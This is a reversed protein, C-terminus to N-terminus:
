PPNEPHSRIVNPMLSQAAWDRAVFVAVGALAFSKKCLLLLVSRQLCRQLLPALDIQSDARPYM